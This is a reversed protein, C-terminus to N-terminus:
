AGTGLWASRDAIRCQLSAGRLTQTCYDATTPPDAAECDSCTSLCASAHLLRNLRIVDRTFASAGSIVRNGIAASYQWVM